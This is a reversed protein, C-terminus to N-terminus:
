PEDDEGFREPNARATAEGSERAGRVSADTDAAGAPSRHVAMWFRGAYTAGGLVLAALAIALWAFSTPVTRPATAKDILQATDQRPPPPPPPPAGMAGHQRMGSNPPADQSVVPATSTGLPKTHRASRMPALQAVVADANPPRADPSKELLQMVLSEVGAPVERRVADPLPPPPATCQMNLLERPSASSFPPKGCLMEYMVLGLAYLDSRADIAVADIQEPSMYQLTGVSQTNTAKAAMAVKAIGFDMVKVAPQEADVGTLMINEPKLDRHIIPPVQGHAAGLGDAIQAAFEVATQWPFAGKALLEERLTRGELYELVMVLEDEAEFAALSRIVRPHELHALIQMENLFLRKADDDRALQPRLIKLAVKRRTLRESAEYVKGMGGEGILRTVEYEGYREKM